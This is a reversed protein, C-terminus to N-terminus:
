QQNRLSADAMSRLRYFILNITDSQDISNIIPMDLRNHSIKMFLISADLKSNFDSLVPNKENVTICRM